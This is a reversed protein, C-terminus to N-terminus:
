QLYHSIYNAYIEYAPLRDLNIRQKAKELIKKPKSCSHFQKFKNEYEDIDALVNDISAKITKPHLTENRQPNLQLIAESLVNVPLINILDLCAEKTQKALESRKDTEQVALPKGFSIYIDDLYTARWKLYDKAKVRYKKAEGATFEDMEYLISYDVNVPIIHVNTHQAANIAGQFGAPMFDKVFGDRSRTGEPFLLVNNNTKLINEITAIMHPIAQRPNQEREVMIGGSQRAVYDFLKNTKGSSKKVLNNGMLAYPLKGGHLDIAYPIGLTEWMSKHPAIFFLACHNKEKQKKLLKQTQKPMSYHKFSTTKIVPWFLSKALSLIIPNRQPSQM